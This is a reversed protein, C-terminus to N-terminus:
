KHGDPTYGPEDRPDKGKKIFILVSSRLAPNIRSIATFNVRDFTRIPPSLWENGSLSGQDTSISVHETTLPYIKGSSFVGEVNVYFNLVPKISDAYLNFRIEQLVPFHLPVRLKRGDVSVQFYLKGGNSHVLEPDWKLTKGRLEAEPSSLRYGARVPKWGEGSRKELQIEATNYLEPISNEDFVLRYEQAGSATGLLLLWVFLLLKKM